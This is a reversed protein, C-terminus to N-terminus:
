DPRTERHLFHEERALRACKVGDARQPRVPFQADLIDFGSGPGGNGQQALIHFEIPFLVSRIEHDLRGFEIWGLHGAAMGKSELHVFGSRSACHLDTIARIGLLRGDVVLM